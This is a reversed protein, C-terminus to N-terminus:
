KLFAAITDVVKWALDDKKDATGTVDFQYIREKQGKFLSAKLLIKNGTISYKGRVSYDDLLINDAVFLLPSANGKESLNRLENDILSSLDLDDNLLEEDQIFKSRRFIKKKISLQIHDLIEKDVIGIEFSANV